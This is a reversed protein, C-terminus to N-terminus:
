SNCQAATQLRIKSIPCNNARTSFPSSRHRNSGLPRRVRCFCSVCVRSATFSTSNSRFCVRVCSMLCRKPSPLLKVAPVSQSARERVFAVKMETEMQTGAKRCLQLDTPHLAVEGECMRGKFHLDAKLAVPQLHQSTTHHLLLQQM